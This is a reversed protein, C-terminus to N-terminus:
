ITTPRKLFLETPAAKCIIASLHDYPLFWKSSIVVFYIGAKHFLLIM